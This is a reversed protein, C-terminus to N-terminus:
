VSSLSNLNSKDVEGKLSKVNHYRLNFAMLYPRMM